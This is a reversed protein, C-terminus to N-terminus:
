KEFDEPCRTKIRSYADCGSGRNECGIPKEKGDRSFWIVVVVAVDVLFLICIGPSKGVMFRKIITSYLNFAYQKFAIGGRLIGNLTKNLRFVM